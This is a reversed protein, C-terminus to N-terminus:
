IAQKTVSEVEPNGDTNCYLNITVLISEDDEVDPVVLTITKWDREIYSKEIIAKAMDRGWQGWSGHWQITKDSIDIGVSFLESDEKHLGYFVKVITVYDYPIAKFM